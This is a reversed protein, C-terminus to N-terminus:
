VKRLFMMVSTFITDQDKLLMHPTQFRDVRLDVPDMDYRDWVRDDIPQVLRLRPQEIIARVEDPSFAEHGPTGRM